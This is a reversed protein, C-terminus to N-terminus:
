RANPCKGNPCTSYLLPSAVYVTKPEMVHVGAATKYCDYVGPTFGKLSPTHYDGKTKTDGIVLTVRKGSAVANYCATFDNAVAKCSGTTKCECDACECKGPACKCKGGDACECADRAKPPAAPLTFSVHLLSDVKKFRESELLKDIKKVRQVERPMPAINPASAVALAVKVAREREAATKVPDAAIASGCAICLVLCTLIASAVKTLMKTNLVIDGPPKMPTPNSQAPTVVNVRVNCYNPDAQPQLEAIEAEILVRDGLKLNAGRSDHM